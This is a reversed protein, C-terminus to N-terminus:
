FDKIAIDWSAQQILTYIDVMEAAEQKGFKFVDKEDVKDLLDILQGSMDDVKDIQNQECRDIIKQCHLKIDKLLQSSKDKHTGHTQNTSQNTNNTKAM